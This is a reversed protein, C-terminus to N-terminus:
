KKQEIEQLLVELKPLINEEAIIRAGEKNPHIGDQQNFSPVLAVRDLLFPILPINYEKALAPYIANFQNVYTEGLNSPAYMGLLIVRAGAEEFIEITSALNKRTSAPDVGRLVDNGGLALLVIDPKQAAVFSARRLGGASTEGTVGSNVVVVEYELHTLARELQAPYSDALAIGYGATISDGFAVIVTKTVLPVSEVAEVDLAKPVEPYQTAVKASEPYVFFSAGIFLSFAVAVSFIYIWRSSKKTNSPSM